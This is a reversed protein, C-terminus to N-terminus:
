TRMDHMFTRLSEALDNSLPPLPTGPPLDRLEDLSMELELLSLEIVTRAADVLLIRHDGDDRFGEALREQRDAELVAQKFVGRPDFPNIGLRESCFSSFENLQM